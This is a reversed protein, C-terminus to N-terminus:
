YAGKKAPTCSFDAISCYCLKQRQGTMEQIYKADERAGWTHGLVDVICLDALQGPRHIRGILQEWRAGSAPPELVVMRDWSQMNKGKGHVDLSICPYDEFVSPTDTGAGYTAWGLEKLKAEVARSQFVVVARPHEDLTHLLMRRLPEDDIWVPTPTPGPRDSVRQWADWARRTSAQLRGERAAQEVLAPSDLGARSGYTLTHRLARHWNSRAQMWELDPTDDPWVARYYFGLALTRAALAVQSAEVLETGDPLVWAKQLDAMADEVAQPREMSVHRVLLSTGLAGETTAIVGPTARLRAQFARRPDRTGAWELLSNMSDLDQQTPEGDVATVADWRNLVRPHLPTPTDQRLAMEMLHALEYLRKGILTGSLVVVRTQPHQVCYRIVRKTRASSRHRLLHAEDLVLLDPKIDDLLGAGSTASLRSYPLVQLQPHFSFHQGWEVIDREVQQLLSSPVLVLPRTCSIVTPALLSILTKGHGVGILAAIGKPAEADRLARLAAGQVPRLPPAKDHKRLLQTMARADDEANDLENVSPLACIRIIDLAM